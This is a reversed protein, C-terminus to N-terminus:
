EELQEEEEEPKEEQSGEYNQYFRQSIEDENMYASSYVLEQGTKFCKM